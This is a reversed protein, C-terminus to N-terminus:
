DVELKRFSGEIGFLTSSTRPKDPRLSEDSYQKDQELFWDQYSEVKAKWYARLEDLSKAMGGYEKPLVEKPFVSYVQEVNQGIVQFRNRLKDGLFTKLIQFATEFGSPTHLIYAGKMRLPFAKEICTVFKKALAPTLQLFTSLGVGRLDSLEMQGAVVYNDDELILIELIMFVVKMLDSMKYKSPNYLGVRTNVIRCSDEAMCVDLPLFIGLQLIEQIIPDFPNRDRFIEPVVARLTYLMDLKEKSRELSHKNGRLFAVLFQDTPNVSQLHPQKKLWERLALIDSPIRNPKEFLEKEAKEQLAKSLPRIM